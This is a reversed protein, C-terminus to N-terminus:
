SGLLKLQKSIHSSSVVEGQGIGECRASEAHWAEPAQLLEPWFPYTMCQRPRVPYVSCRDNDDLLICRGQANIRIGKSKSGLSVLCDRRFSKKDLNLFQRIKGAEGPLLEIYHEDAHGLCCRGCGTCHFRLETDRIFM